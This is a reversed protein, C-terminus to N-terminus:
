LRVRGAVSAGSLRCSRRIASAQSKSFGALPAM